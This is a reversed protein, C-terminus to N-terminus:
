RCRPILKLKVTNKGRMTPRAAFGQVHKLNNAKQQALLLLMSTRPANGIREGNNKRRASIPVPEASAPLGDQPTTNQQPNITPRRTGFRKM